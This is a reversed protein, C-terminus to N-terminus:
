IELYVMKQVLPLENNETVSSEGNGMGGVLKIGASIKKNNSLVNGLVANGENTIEISSYLFNDKGHLNVDTSIAGNNTLIEKNNELEIGNGKEVSITTNNIIEKSYANNGVVVLLAVITLSVSSRYGLMKKINM